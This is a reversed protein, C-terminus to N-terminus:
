RANQFEESNVMDRMREYDCRVDPKGFGEMTRIAAALIKAKRNRRSRSPPMRYRSRRSRGTSNGEPCDAFDLRSPEGSCPWHRSASAESRVQVRSGARQSPRWQVSEGTTEPQNGHHHVPTRQCASRHRSDQHRVRDHNHDHSQRHPHHLRCNSVRSSTRCRKRSRKAASHKSRNMPRVM